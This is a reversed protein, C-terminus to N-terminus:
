KGYLLLIEIYISRITYIEPIIHSMQAGATNQM